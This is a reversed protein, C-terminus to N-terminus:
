WYTHLLEGIQSRGVINHKRKRPTSSL